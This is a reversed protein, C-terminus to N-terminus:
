VHLSRCRDAVLPWPETWWRWPHLRWRVADIDQPGRLMWVTYCACNYCQATFHSWLRKSLVDQRRIWPLLLVVGRFVPVRGCLVSSLTVLLWRQSLRLHCVSCYPVDSSRRVAFGPIKARELGTTVIHVVLNLPWLYWTRDVCNIHKTHIQSCVAIIERYLM